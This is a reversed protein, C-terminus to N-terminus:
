RTSHGQPAALPIHPRPTAAPQSITGYFAGDGHWIYRPCRRHYVLDNLRQLNYYQGLLNFSAPFFGNFLMLIIFFRFFLFSIATFPETATDFTEPADGITCSTTSDSYTAINHRYSSFLSFVNFFMLFAFFYFLVRRLFSRRRTSHRQPMTSPVHPPPTATPQSITDM